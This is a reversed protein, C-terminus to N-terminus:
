MGYLLRAAALDFLASGVSKFVATASAPPSDLAEALPTVRDWDIQAQILDGAEARAGELTDVVVAARKLLEPPVEAMQPTFAGVAIVCAGEPLEAPVVPTRSATASIVCDVETAVREPLPVTQARAGWSRAKSALATARSLTRNYIFLREPDFATVFAQAHAEAQAGAGIILIRRPPESRLTRAALLSLAATRRQTVVDGDALLLGRGDDADFVLLEASSAPLGRAPNRPHVSIRKVAGLREDWAPMLLLSAGGPMEYVTRLPAHAKGTAALRLVAAIEDALLDYPLAAATQQDDLVIM